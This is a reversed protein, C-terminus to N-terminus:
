LPSDSQIKKIVSTAQALMSSIDAVNSPVIMTNNTKAMNSLAAIYKNALEFQVAESGGHTTAAQAIRELAIAAGEAALCQAMKQAEAQILLSSAEGEAINISYIKSAESKLVTERKHAEARNVVAQQEGESQLIDVRKKREAEMQMEMAHLVNDPPQIERIEHRLCTIGWMKAADNCTEVVKTNVLNREHFTEDLTLKGIVSRLSTQALQSLAFVPDGCGYAAAYPDVIKYYLVGICHIRVNDKTIASRSPIILAQEKMSFRYAITDILPIYFHMGGGVTELYKGFREIIWVEQQPCINIITNTRGGHTQAATSNGEMEVRAFASEISTSHGSPRQDNSYSSLPKDSNTPMPRYPSGSSQFRLGRAQKHPLCPRSHKTRSLSVCKYLIRSSSPAALRSVTSLLRPSAVTIAKSVALPARSKFAPAARAVTTLALM